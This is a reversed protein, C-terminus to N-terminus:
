ILDTRKGNERVAMWWLCIEKRRDGARFSGPPRLPRGRPRFRPDCPIRLRLSHWTSTRDSCHHQAFTRYKTYGLLRLGERQFATLTMSFSGRSSRVHRAIRTSRSEYRRRQRLTQTREAKCEKNGIIRPFCNWTRGNLAVKAPKTSSRSTLFTSRRVM